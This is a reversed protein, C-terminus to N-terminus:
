KISFYVLWPDPPPKRHKVIWTSWLENWVECSQQLMLRLDHNRGVDLQTTETCSKTGTYVRVSDHNIKFLLLLHSMIEFFNEINPFFSRLNDYFPFCFPVNRVQWGEVFVPVALYNEDGFWFLIRGLDDGQNEHLILNSSIWYGCKWDPGIFALEWSITDKRCDIIRNYNGQIFSRFGRLWISCLNDLELWPTEPDVPSRDPGLCGGSVQTYSTLPM